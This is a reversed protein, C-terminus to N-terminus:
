NRTTLSTDPIYLGRVVKGCSSGEMACAANESVDDVKDVATAQKEIPNKEMKEDDMMKSDMKKHDMKDDMKHDMKDDMKDDMKHSAKHDAKEASKGEIDMKKEARIDSAGDMLKPDASPKHMQADEKMEVKKAAYDLVKSDVLWKNIKIVASTGLRLKCVKKM